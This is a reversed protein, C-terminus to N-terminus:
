SKAEKVIESRINSLFEKTIGRYSAIMYQPIRQVIEHYSETFFLYREKETMSHNRIIRKSMNGYAPQIIIRFYRELKPIHVYLQEMDEYSLQVM